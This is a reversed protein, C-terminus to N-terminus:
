ETELVIGQAVFKCKNTKLVIKFNKGYINAYLMFSKWPSEYVNVLCHKICCDTLRFKFKKKPVINHTRCDRDLCYNIIEVFFASDCKM